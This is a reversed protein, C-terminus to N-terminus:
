THFMVIEHVNKQCGVRPFEQSTLLMIIDHSINHMHFIVIDHFYTLIDHLKKDPM